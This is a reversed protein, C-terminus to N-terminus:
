SVTAWNATEGVAARMPTTSNLLSAFVSMGSDASPLATVAAIEAADAAPPPVDTESPKAAASPRNSLADDRGPTGRVTSSSVSPTCVTSPSSLVAIACADVTFLAPTLMTATPKPPAATDVISAIADDGVDSKANKPLSMSAIRLCKPASAFSHLRATAGFAGGGGDGGGDGGLGGPAGGDDGGGGKGGENGGVGGGDGRGEGGGM